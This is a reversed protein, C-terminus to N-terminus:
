QSQEVVEWEALTEVAVWRPDALAADLPKGLLISKRQNAGLTRVEARLEEVLATDWAPYGVRDYARSLRAASAIDRLRQAHLVQNLDLAEPDVCLLYRGLERLLRLRAVEVQRELGRRERRLAREQMQEVRLRAQRTAEQEAQVWVAPDPMRGDWQGMLAELRELRTVEEWGGEQCWLAVSGRFSGEAYAGVVLPVREGARSHPDLVRRYETLWPTLPWATDDEELEERDASALRKADGVQVRRDPVLDVFTRVVDERSIGPPPVPGPLEESGAFAASSLSDREVADAIGRLRSADFGTTGLLMTRAHALVPQMPGVFHEFMGCRERLLQYVRDDVSDQLFLNVIRVEQASQGIRDIRGIRQEVRSPNWPLDYNIVAGATQLNLGESAADTCLLVRIRGHRLRNTIEDKSVRAWKSGNWVRGGDGTYCALAGGYRPYLNERLYEVTDGYESFVLAPRGDVMVASLAGLFRELKTDVGGLQRLQELIREVDRLEQRAVLPDEPLASSVQGVQEGEPLDDIDIAATEEIGALYPDAARRSIVRRLGDARRLLSQELAYPSSSARRRYITMVFGKGPREEELEEFRRTVYTAISDYVAREQPDDFEYRLDDIIREPPPRDLLGQRHYARLTGRTNRHM